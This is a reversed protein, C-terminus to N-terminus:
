ALALTSEVAATPTRRLASRHLMRRRISRATPTARSASPGPAPPGSVNRRSSAPLLGPRALVVPHLSRQAQRIATPPRTLPRFTAPAMMARSKGGEVGVQRAHRSRSSWRHRKAHHRRGPARRDSVALAAHREDLRSAQEVSGGRTSGITRARQQLIEAARAVDRACCQQGRVCTQAPADDGALGADIAPVSAAASAKRRSSGAM